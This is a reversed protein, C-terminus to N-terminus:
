REFLGGNEVEMIMRSITHWVYQQHNLVGASWNLNANIHMFCASDPLNKSGEVASIALHRFWWCCFCFIGNPLAVYLSPLAVYLVPWSHTSINVHLFFLFSRNGTMSKTSGDYQIGAFLESSEIPQAVCSRKTTMPVVPPVVPPEPSAAMALSIRTTTEKPFACLLFPLSSSSSSSSRWQQAWKNMGAWFWPGFM